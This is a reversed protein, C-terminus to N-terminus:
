KVMAALLPALGGERLQANIQPLDKTQLVNWKAM